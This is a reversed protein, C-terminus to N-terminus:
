SVSGVVSKCTDGFAEYARWYSHARQELREDNYDFPEGRERLAHIEALAEDTVKLYASLSAVLVDDRGRRIVLRANLAYLDRRLVGQPPAAKARPLGFTDRQLWSELAILQQTHDYMLPMLEDLLARLDDLDKAVRERRAQQKERLWGFGAAVAPALIGVAGTVVIALQETEM